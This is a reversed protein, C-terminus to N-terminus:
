STGYLSLQYYNTQWFTKDVCATQDGSIYFCGSGSNDREISGGTFYIGIHDGTVVDLDVTFTQKSGTTVTGIAQSDRATFVYGTPTKTFIAVIVGTMETAAWIDISTIKGSANATNTDVIYTVGQGATTGRNIAPSGIDIDEQSTTFTMDDGYVNDGYVDVVYARFHYAIYPSLGTVQISYNGDSYSGDNHTDSGYATTTGYQFGRRTCNGINYLTIEGKLYATIKTIGYSSITKVRAGGSYDVEVEVPEQRINKSHGLIKPLEKNGYEYIMDVIEGVSFVANNIVTEVNPYASSANAIKVNYTGNNNDITIEGMVVTNKYKIQNNSNKIVEGIFDSM